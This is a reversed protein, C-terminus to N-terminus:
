EIIVRLVEEISTIEQTAKCFGDEIMLRMGEKQARKQIEDISVRKQILEKISESIEM